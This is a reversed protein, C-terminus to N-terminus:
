NQLQSTEVRRLYRIRACEKCQRYGTKSNVYTNVRDYEHGQPCHTRSERGNRQRGNRISDQQNDSATGWALNGPLNHHKEDDLHRVVPLELPNEVFALAVLRHVYEVKPRGSRYLKVQLYGQYTPNQKLVRGPMTYSGGNYTSVSHPLSRVRGLSSVEYLGEWGIM